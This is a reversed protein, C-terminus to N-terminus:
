RSEWVGLPSPFELVLGQGRGGREQPLIVVRPLALASRQELFAAAQDDVLVDQPEEGFRPLRASVPRAMWLLGRTFGTLHVSGM